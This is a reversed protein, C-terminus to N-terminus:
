NILKQYNLDLAYKVQRLKNLVIKVFDTGM